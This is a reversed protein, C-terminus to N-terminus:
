VINNETFDTIWKFPERHAETVRDSRFTKEDHKLNFFKCFTRGLDQPNYIDFDKNLRNKERLQYALGALLAKTDHWHYCGTERDFNWHDSTRSIVLDFYDKSKFIEPLDPIPKQPKAKGPEQYTAPPPPTAMNDSESLEAKIFDFAKSDHWYKKGLGSKSLATLFVKSLAPNFEKIKEIILDIEPFYKAKYFRGNFSTHSYSNNIAMIELEIGNIFEWYEGAKEAEGIAQLAKKFEFYDM